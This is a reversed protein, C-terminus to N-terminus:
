SVHFPKKLKFICPHKQDNINLPRGNILDQYLRKLEVYSGEKAFKDPLYAEFMYYWTVIQNEYAKILRDDRIQGHRILYCLWNIDDYSNLNLARLKDSHAKKEEDDKPTEADLLNHEKFGRGIDRNMGELVRLEEAKSLRTYSKGSYFLGIAAVVAAILGSIASAAVYLSDSEASVRTIM